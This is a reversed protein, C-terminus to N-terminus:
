KSKAAQGIVLDCTRAIRGSAIEAKISKVLTELARVQGELVDVRNMLEVVLEDKAM